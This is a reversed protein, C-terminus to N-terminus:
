GRGDGPAETPRESSWVRWSVEAGGRRTEGALRGRGEADGQNPHVGQRSQDAGGLSWSSVLQEPALLERGPFLLSIVRPTARGGALTQPLFSPSPTKAPCLSASSHSVSVRPM